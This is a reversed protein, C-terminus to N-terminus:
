GAIIRRMQGDNQYDRVVAQPALQETVTKAILAMTQQQTSLDQFTPNQLIINVGGGGGSGGRGGFRVPIAGNQLPIHAEPVGSWYTGPRTSIGGQDFSPQQQSIIGVQTAGMASVMGVLPIKAWIPIKEGIVSTVGLATNMIAEAISFMKNMQFAKKKSIAGMEGWQKYMDAMQGFGRGIVRFTGEWADLTRKRTKEDENKEFDAKDAYFNQQLEKRKQYVFTDMAIMAEGRSMGYNVLEQEMQKLDDEHYAKYNAVEDKMQFEKLNWDGKGGRDKGMPTMLSAKYTAYAKRAPAVKEAKDLFEKELRESEDGYRKTIDTAMKWEKNMDAIRKNREQEEKQHIKDYFEKTIRERIEVKAKEFDAEWDLEENHANYYQRGLEEYKKETASIEDQIKKELIAKEDGALAKVAMLYYDKSKVEIDKTPDYNGYRLAMEKQKQVMNLQNLEGEKYKAAFLPNKMLEDKRANVSNLLAQSKNLADGANYMADIGEWIKKLEYLAVALAVLSAVPGAIPALAAIIKTGIDSKSFINYAGVWAEGMHLISTGFGVIKYIAAGWLVTDIIGKVVGPHETVWLAIGGLVDLLHKFIDAAAQARKKLEGTDDMHQFQDNIKKMWGTMSKLLGEGEQGVGMFYRQIRGIYDMFNSSQGKWTQMMRDSMGRFFSEQESWKRYLQLKTEEATYRVGAHFGLMELVGHLRFLRASQAGSSFMKIIQETAVGVNIKAYAALDSIVPMWAMIEKRGGKMIPGLMAAAETLEFLQAPSKLAFKQLDDYLGLAEKQSKLVGEFRMMILESERGFDLFSRAIKQALYGGALALLTNHLPKFASNLNNAHKATNQMQVNAQGLVKDFNTIQAIGDKIDVVLKFTMTQNQNAM